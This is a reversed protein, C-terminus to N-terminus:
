APYEAARTVALAASLRRAAENASRVTDPIGAGVYGNGALALTPHEALAADLRRMRALHGVHYQPMSRPYRSVFTWLPAGRTGLLERVDAEVAATMAADDLEFNRPALAGGVFARM